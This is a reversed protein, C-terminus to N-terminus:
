KRGPAPTWNFVITLPSPGAQPAPNSANLMLFRQGDPSLRFQQSRDLVGTPTVAFLEVPASPQPVSTGNLSVSMVRGDAGPTAIRVYFIEKGDKSWQPETGGNTSIQWKAGTVPFPQVYVQDTGSEDSTYAVWKGDPSFRAWSENFPTNLLPYPKRDGSMPLVWLRDKTAPGGETYLLFKGDRSWDEAAKGRSSKLLLEEDAAGSSPKSYLDFVGSAKASSYVIRSGDPSWLPRLSHGEDFTFRTSINRDPEVIWLGGQKDSGARLHSHTAIRKGDPSIDFSRYLAQDAFPASREGKKDVWVFQTDGYFSGSRYVLVDPSSAAFPANGNAANTLIQDDIRVPEGTLKFSGTDLAQALLAGGRSFLLYGGAYVARVQTTVVLKPEDGDLSAVYIGSSQPAQAISLYIFHRGDPLFQPWVHAIERNPDLHTAPVPEGGNESVRLLGSPSDVTRGFVIVGSNSWSAGGYMYGVNCLTQPAGGSLDVKKLKGAAIFGVYRNDPSWFPTNGDVTGQLVQSTLSDFPHIWIYPRGNDIVSFALFRSDPSVAFHPVNPGGNFTKGEPAPMLIRISRTTPPPQRWLSFAAVALAISAVLSLIAVSPSWRVWWSRGAADDPAPAPRVDASGGDRIWRLEDLLDRASQWRQGADKALCKKLLRGMGPTIAPQLSPAPAPDVHIIAAILSAQSKGEFAKKGTLTEYLVAGFSFIDSRADVEQGELQEPSMYQLTGLITGQVTLEAPSGATPMMSVTQAPGPPKFKALGFDLLKAGAATLMINAPKLDRHLVGQAHAKDLAAAVEIACKLAQDLPMPGKKLREALTEGDLYEMVLFVVDDQQGIDHLVCINPHNLSSITRAEREFRERLEPTGPLHAPLVKIAVIRDLRTDKAKYVEGMGGAGATALIEYPGLQTGVSLAMPIFTIIASSRSAYSLMPVNFTDFFPSAM